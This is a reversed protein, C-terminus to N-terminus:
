DKRVQLKDVVPSLTTKRVLSLVKRAEKESGAFGEVVLRDGQAIFDVDCDPYLKTVTKAVEQAIQKLSVQKSEETGVIVERIEVQQKGGEPATVIAVRTKGNAIGVISLTKEGTRFARCISTHEASCQLVPSDVRLTMLGHKEISLSEGTTMQEPSIPLMSPATSEAETIPTAPSASLALDESETEDKKVVSKATAALSANVKRPEEQVKRTSDQTSISPLTPDFTPAPARTALQNTPGPIVVAPEGEVRVELGQKQEKKRSSIAMPKNSTLQTDSDDDSLSFSASEKDEDGRVLKALTAAGDSIKDRLKSGPKEEAPKEVADSVSFEVAEDAGNDAFSMETPAADQEQQVAPPTVAPPAINLRMKKNRKVVEPMAVTQEPAAVTMKLEVNSSATQMSIVPPLDSPSAAESTSSEQTAVQVIAPMPASRPAMVIQATPQAPAPTQSAPNVTEGPVPIDIDLLSTSDFDSGASEAVADFATTAAAPPLQVAPEQVTSEHVSPVPPKDGGSATESVASAPVVPPLQAFISPAQPLPRSKLGLISIIRQDATVQEASVPKAAVDQAGSTAPAFPYPIEGASTSTSPYTPLGDQAIATAGLTSALALGVAMRKASRIASSRRKGIVSKFTKM